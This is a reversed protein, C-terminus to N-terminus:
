HSTDHHRSGTIIWFFSAENSVKRVAQKAQCMRCDFKNTKKVQQVQVIVSTDGAECADVPFWTEVVSVQFTNCTFCQVCIFEPM